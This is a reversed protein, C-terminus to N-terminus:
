SKKNLPTTKAVLGLALIILAINKIIYQGELNPVFPSHWVAEPIIILPSCVIIMHIFLLLISFRTFRPILFSIGIAVEFIALLVFLQDFYQLGLTQRVLEQALGEAPSIELLKLLGFYAFIIFLALRALPGFWKSAFGIFAKDFKKLNKM